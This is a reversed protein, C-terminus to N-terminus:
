LKANLSDEAQKLMDLQNQLYERTDAIWKPMDEPKVVVDESCCSCGYTTAMYHDPNYDDRWDEYDEMKRLSKAVQKM